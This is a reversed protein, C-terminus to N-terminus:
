IERRMGKPVKMVFKDNEDLINKFLDLNLNLKEVLYKMAKTDKPLCAGGFGGFEKNVNLYHGEQIGHLLFSDKVV